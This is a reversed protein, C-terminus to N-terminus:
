GRAYLSSSTRCRGDAFECEFNNIDTTSNCRVRDRQLSECTGNETDNFSRAGQRRPAIIYSEWDNSQRITAAPGNHEHPRKDRVYRWKGACHDSGPKRTVGYCDGYRSCAELAEEKTDFVKDADCTGHRKTLYYGDLKDYRTGAVMISGSGARIVKPINSSPPSVPEFCWPGNWQANFCAGKAECLGKQTNVNWQVDKTDDWPGPSGDDNIM